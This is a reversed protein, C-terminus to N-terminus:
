SVSVGSCWTCYISDSQYWQDTLFYLRVEKHSWRKFHSGGTLSWKELIVIKKKLTIVVHTYNSVRAVVEGLLGGKPSVNQIKRNNKVELIHGSSM